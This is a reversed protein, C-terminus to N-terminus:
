INANKEGGTINVTPQQKEAKHTRASRKGVHEQKQVYFHPTREARGM